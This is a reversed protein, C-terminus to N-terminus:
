NVSGLVVAWQINLSLHKQTDEKSVWTNATYGVLCLCGALEGDWLGLVQGLCHLDSMEFHHSVGDYVPM